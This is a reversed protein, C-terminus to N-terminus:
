TIFRLILIHEILMFHEHYMLTTVKQYIDFSVLCRTVLLGYILYRPVQPCNSVMYIQTQHFASNAVDCEVMLDYYCDNPYESKYSSLKYILGRTKVLQERLQTSTHVDQCM